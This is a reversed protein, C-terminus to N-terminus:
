YSKIYRKTIFINRERPPSSVWWSYCIDGSISIAFLPDILFGNLMALSAAMGLAHLQVAAAVNIAFAFMALRFLLSLPYYANSGDLPFFPQLM